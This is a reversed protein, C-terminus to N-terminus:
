ANVLEQQKSKDLGAWREAIANFIEEMDAYSAQWILSQWSKPQEELELNLLEAWYAQQFPTPMSSILSFFKSTPLDTKGNLFRSVASKDFGTWEVIQAGTYNFEPRRLVKNFVIVERSM